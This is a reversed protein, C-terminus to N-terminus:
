KKSVLILFVILSIFVLIAPFMVFRYNVVPKPPAQTTTEMMIPEPDEIGITGEPNEVFDKPEMNADDDLPSETIIEGEKELAPAIVIDTTEIDVVPLEERENIIVDDEIAYVPIIFSIVIILICLANLLKKM